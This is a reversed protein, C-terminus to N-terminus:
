TYIVHYVSFLDKRGIPVGAHLDRGLQDGPPGLCGWLGGNQWKGGKKGELM